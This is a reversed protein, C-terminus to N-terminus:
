ITLRKRKSARRRKLVKKGSHTAMRSLFGHKRQRKVKKSKLGMKEMFLTYCSNSHKYINIHHYGSESGQCFTIWM